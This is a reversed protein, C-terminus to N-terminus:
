SSYSIKFGPISKLASDFEKEPFNCAHNVTKVSAITEDEGLQKEFSDNIELTREM